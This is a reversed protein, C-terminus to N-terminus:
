YHNFLRKQLYDAIAISTNDDKIIKFDESAKRMFLLEPQKLILDFAIENMNEYQAPWRGDRRHGVIDDHCEHSWCTWTVGSRDGALHVHEYDGDQTNLEKGMEVGDILRSLTTLPAWEDSAASVRGYVRWTAHEWLDRRAVLLEAHKRLLVFWQKAKAVGPQDGLHTTVVDFLSRKAQNLHSFIYGYNKVPISNGSVLIFYESKPAHLVADALLIAMCENLAGWSCKQRAKIVHFFDDLNPDFKTADDASATQYSSKYTYTDDLIFNKIPVKTHNFNPNADKCAYNKLWNKGDEFFYIWAQENNIGEHALFMFTIPKPDACWTEETMQTHAQWLEEEGKCPEIAEAVRERDPVASSITWALSLSVFFTACKPTM